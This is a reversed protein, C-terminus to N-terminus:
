KLETVTYKQAVAPTYRQQTESYWMLPPFAMHYVPSSFSQQLSNGTFFNFSYDQQQYPLATRFSKDSGAIPKLTGNLFQIAIYNDSGQNNKYISNNMPLWGTVRAKTNIPDTTYREFIPIVPLQDNFIQALTQVYTKQKAVDDGALSQQILTRINVTKGDKTKQTLPWNMGKSGTKADPKNSGFFGETMYYGYSTSPHSPTSILGFDMLAQYRAQDITAPREQAAISRVTTQFGFRNLQQSVAQAAALFDVFDGPATIEFKVPKGEDDVWTAGQKKFGISQLLATAKSVDTKYEDLGRRTTANLWGPVLLDSFGAMYQIPKGADGLAIRAVEDRNIVHAVAQRFEKKSFTDINQNFWLAPGVSLPSKILQLNPNQAIAKVDSPTFAAISYDIQNSLLLPLVQQTEGYYVIVRDFGIRGANYGGKNKVLELQTPGVKNSTLYFPGYSVTTTPKYKELDNLLDKVDAGNRDAGKVRLQRARTYLPGYQSWSGTQNSRVLQRLITPSVDKLYFEITADDKAKVDTLQNWIGYGQAWILDYGGVFDRATLPTGDSWKIGPKLTVSVLYKADQAFSATGTMAALALAGTLVNTLVKIM